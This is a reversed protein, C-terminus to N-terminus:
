SSAKAECKLSMNYLVDDDHVKLNTLLHEIQQVAHFSYAEQQFQQIQSIVTYLLRYKNFNILGDATFDPNGDAIFVIDKLFIGIYPIAPPKISLLAERIKRYSQDGKMLDNWEEVKAMSRPDVNMQTLKLRHIPTSSLAALIAQFTQFNNLNRLHEAIKIFRTYMRVRDRLKEMKLISHAVWNSVVNFRTIMATVYPARHKLHKQSWAQNLLESPQIRAFIPFEILTLQRAIEEEDVDSLKLNPSFINNPVKPDPISRSAPVTLTSEKAIGTTSVRIFINELTKAIPSGEQKLREIFVKLEARLSYNNFDVDFYEAIWQKLVNCVRSQIAVRREAGGTQESDPDDDQDADRATLMGEDKTESPVTYRQILKRLLVIPPTFLRYTMLFTKLFTVDAEDPSTLHLVLRNLSAARIGRSKTGGAAPEDYVITGSTPENWINDADTTVPELLLGLRGLHDQLELSTRESSLGRDGVTLDWVKESDQMALRLLHVLRSDTTVLTSSEMPLGAQRVIDTAASKCGELRLHAVILKLLSQEDAEKDATLDTTPKYQRAFSCARGVPSVREVLDLVEPHKAFFSEM